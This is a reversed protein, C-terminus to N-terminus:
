NLMNKIVLYIINIPRYSYRRNFIVGPIILGPYAIRLDIQYQQATLKKIKRGM